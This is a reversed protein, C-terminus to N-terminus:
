DQISLTVTATATYNPRGWDAAKVLFMQPSEEQELLRTTMLYGTRTNISLALDRSQGRAPELYYRIAGNEGIDRDVAQVQGVQVGVHDSRRVSFVFSSMSLVPANDNVDLVHIVVSVTSSLPPTGSDVCMIQVDHSSRLERDLYRSLILTYIGAARQQLEAVGDDPLVTCTVQAESAEVAVFALVYGPEAREEVALVSSSGAIFSVQIQPPQRPPQRGSIGADAVASLFCLIAVISSFRYM